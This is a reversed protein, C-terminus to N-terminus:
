LSEMRKSDKSQEQWNNVREKPTDEMRQETPNKSPTTWNPSLQEEQQLPKAENAQPGFSSGHFSESFDKVPTKANGQISFSSLLLIAYLAKM